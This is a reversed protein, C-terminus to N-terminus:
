LSSALAAIKRILSRISLSGKARRFGEGETKTLSRPSLETFIETLIQAGTLSHNPIFVLSSQFM